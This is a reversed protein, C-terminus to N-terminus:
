SKRFDHIELFHKWAVEMAIDKASEFRLCKLNLSNVIVLPNVLNLFKVSRQKIYIIKLIIEESKICHSSSKTVM